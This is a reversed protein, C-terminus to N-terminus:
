PLCSPLLASPPIRGLQAQARMLTALNGELVGIRTELREVEKRLSLISIEQPSALLKWGTQGAPIALSKERLAQLVSRVCNRNRYSQDGYLAKALDATEARGGSSALFDLIDSQKTGERVGEWRSM